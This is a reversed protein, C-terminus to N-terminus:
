ALGAISFIRVTYDIWTDQKLAAIIGLPISLLTAVVTAMLALQLSLAFRLKIEQTIPAGTWMSLGLDLHLLGWAWVLFQKWVPQDLGLKQREAEMLAQDMYQGQGAALFRAEVVDGPVIRLLFFALLAVGVLTPIMLLFRKVIYRTMDRSASRREGDVPPAGAPRAHSSPSG